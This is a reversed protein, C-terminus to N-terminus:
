VLMVCDLESVPLVEICPCVLGSELTCQGRGIRRREEVSLDTLLYTLVEEVQQQHEESHALQVSTINKNRAAGKLLSSICLSFFLEPTSQQFFSAFTDKTICSVSSMYYNYSVQSPQLGFVIHPQPLALTSRNYKAPPGLFQTMNALKYGMAMAAHGIFYCNATLRPPM